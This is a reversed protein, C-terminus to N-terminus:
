LENQLEKPKRPSLELDGNEYHEKAHDSPTKLTINGPTNLWPIPKQHHVHMGKVEDFGYEAVALLRHVLVMSGRSEGYWDKWMEYGQEHETFTAYENRNYDKAERRDIGFRELWNRVTKSDCGWEDAIDYSSRGKEVYERVLNEKERWPCKNSETSM